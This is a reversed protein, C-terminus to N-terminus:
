TKIFEEKTVFRVLEERIGQQEMGEGVKTVKVRDEVAQMDVTKM